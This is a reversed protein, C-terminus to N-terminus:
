ASKGPMLESPYDSDQSRDSRLFKLLTYTSDFLPYMRKLSVKWPWLYLNTFYMWEMAPLLVKNKEPATGFEMTYVFWLNDMRSSILVQTTEIKSSNCVSKRLDQPFRQTGMQLTCIYSHFQQTVSCQEAKTTVTRFNKLTTTCSQHSNWLTMLLRHFIMKNWIRTLM